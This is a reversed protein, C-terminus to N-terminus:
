PGSRGPPKPFDADSEWALARRIAEFFSDVSFPKILLGHAGAKQAAEYTRYHDTATMVVVTTEPSMAVIRRTVEIGDIGGPMMIDVVVVQPRLQEFAALAEPGNGAVGVLQFEAEMELLDRAMEGIYRDDDIFLVTIPLELSM